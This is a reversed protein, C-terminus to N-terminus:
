IWTTDKRGHLYPSTCRVTRSKGTEPTCPRSYHACHEPRNAVSFSSRWGSYAPYDQPNTQFHKSNIFGGTWVPNRIGARGAQLLISVGFVSSRGTTFLLLVWIEHGPGEGTHGMICFYICFYFCRVLITVPRTNCWKKMRGNWVSLSNIGLFNTCPRTGCFFNYGFLFLIKWSNVAFGESGCRVRRQWLVPLETVNIVPLINGCFM